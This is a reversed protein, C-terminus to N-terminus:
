GLIKSEHRAPLRNKRVILRSVDESLLKEGSFWEPEEAEFRRRDISYRPLLRDRDRVRPDPRMDKERSLSERSVDRVLEREASMGPYNRRLDFRNFCYSCYLNQGLSWYSNKLKQAQREDRERPSPGGAPRFPYGDDANEKDRFEWDRNIIRGSGIRRVPGEKTSEASPRVVTNPAVTVFCGSNFSRRQPSLVIGDQEKRVRERPDTIRRPLYILQFLIEVQTCSIKFFFQKRFSPLNFNILLQPMDIQKSKPNQTERRKLIYRKVKM